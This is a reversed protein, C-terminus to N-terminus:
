YFDWNPVVSKEYKKRCIKTPQRFKNYVLLLLNKYFLIVFYYIIYLYFMIEKSVNEKIGRRRVKQM